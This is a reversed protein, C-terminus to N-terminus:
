EARSIEKSETAPSVGRNPWIGDITQMVFRISHKFAYENAPRVRAAVIRRPEGKFTKPLAAPDAAFDGCARAAEILQFDARVFPSILFGSRANGPLLRYNRLEGDDLQVELRLESSRSVLSRIAGFLTQKCEIKLWTPEAPIPIWQDLAGFTEREKSLCYSNERASRRKWLLLGNEDRVPAYNKLIKLVIEGDDLTPFRGDITGTHWLLYEPAKASSYFENNLRQLEPTYAAYNIFVPSPAYNLNNLIAVEQDLNMAGVTNSGVIARIEPLAVEHRLMELYRDLELKYTAPRLYAMLTSRNRAVLGNHIAAKFDKNYKHFFLLHALCFLMCIAGLTQAHRPFLGHLAGASRLPSPAKAVASPPRNASELNENVGQKLPTGLRRGGAILQKLLKETGPTCEGKEQGMRAWEIGLLEPLLAAIFFAYVFFVIIHMEARVYGEKWALFIGAAIIIARDTRERWNSSGLWYMLVLGGLLVMAIIGAPLDFGEPDIAMAASYGGAMQASRTFHLFINAISQGTWLCIGLLSVLSSGALIATNRWCAKRNSAAIIMFACGFYVCYTFKTLSLVTFVLGTTILRLAGPREDALCAIGLVTMSLIRFSDFGLNLCTPVTLLPLTVYVALRIAGPVKNLLPVLATTVVLAFVGAWILIPWFFNGWYYDTTLFGLPGYTFVIDRGWQLHHAVAYPVVPEWSDHQWERLGTAPLKVLCSWVFVYALLTRAKDINQAAFRDIGIKGLNLFKAM